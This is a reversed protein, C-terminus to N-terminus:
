QCHDDSASKGQAAQALYQYLRDVEFPSVLPPLKSLQTVVENLESHSPYKVQQHLTYSQWENPSWKQM